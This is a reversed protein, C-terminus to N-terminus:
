NVQLRLVIPIKIDFERIAKLLGEAVIDGRMIGGYINVFLTRVKPDKLILEISKKVTVASAKERTNLFNAANGGYFKIIDNTAMALGSGNVLCGISGDLGMYSVELKKAEVKRPHEQTEDAMGFVEWQREKANPDFKLKVDMAYYNMCVDEIWPNIEALLVDKKLVFKYLNCLMKITEEPQDCIGVRRAIWSAMETTMGKCMDIPEYIIADPSHKATDAISAAGRRSAIVVPGNSKPDLAIAFYFERRPFKRESVMVSKCIKGEPGTQKTVLKQGIM